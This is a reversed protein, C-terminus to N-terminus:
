FVDSLWELAQHMQPFIVQTRYNIIKQHFQFSETHLRGEVLRFDSILDNKILLEDLFTPIEKATFIKKPRCKRTTHLDCTSTQCIAPGASTNV